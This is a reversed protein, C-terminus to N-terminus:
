PEGRLGGPGFALWAGAFGLGAGGALLLAVSRATLFRLPLSGLFGLTGPDLYAVGLRQAALLLALATASAVLGQVGGEVLFRGLVVAESAGVLRMTDIERGRSVVLVRTVNSTTVVASVLITGGLLLGILRLARVGLELRRIIQLDYQVGDVGPLKELRGALAALVPESRARPAVTVTFSAPLPNEDLLDLARGLEPFDRRFLEAAAGPDLFRWSDVAAATDLATEVARRQEPTIGEALFVQMQGRERWGDLVADLNEAILVFAGLVVLSVIMVALAPAVVRRHYWLGRVAEECCLELYYWLRM